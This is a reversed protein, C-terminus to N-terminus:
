AQGGEIAELKAASREWDASAAQLQDVVISLERNLAQARGPHTYTEPAELEAAIEAQRAELTAITRELTSV